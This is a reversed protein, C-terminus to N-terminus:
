GDTFLNLPIFYEFKYPVARSSNGNSINALHNTFFSTMFGAIMAASHSTQKLSCVEDDVEEDDFLHNKKYDDATKRTVCFIQIQEMLLRGDIFIPVVDKNGYFSGFELWREFMIKRPKMIDFGAMMYKHSLSTNDYEGYTNVLGGPCFADLNDQIADAKNIGMNSEQVFQGGMNHEEFRDMDYVHITIGIRALFLSLWSGIGGAGGIVVHADQAINFWPAGSFRSQQPKSM